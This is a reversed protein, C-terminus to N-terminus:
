IKQTIGGKCYRSHAGFQVVQGCNFILDIVFTQCEVGIKVNSVRNLHYSVSMFAFTWIIILCFLFSQLHSTVLHLHIGTYSKINFLFFVKCCRLNPLNFNPIQLIPHEILQILYIDILILFYLTKKKDKCSLLLVLSFFNRLFRADHPQYFGM